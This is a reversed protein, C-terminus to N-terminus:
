KERDSPEEESAAARNLEGGDTSEKPSGSNLHLEALARNIKEAYDLRDDYRFHIEPIHKLRVRQGLLHRVRGAARELAIHTRQLESQTGHFHFYVKAYGLDASTDVGSITVMKLRPDSMEILIM